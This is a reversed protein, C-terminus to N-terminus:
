QFFSDLQETINKEANGTILSIEKVLLQRCYELLKKESFSLKKSVKTLLLSRMVDAVEIISGSNIKELYVRQRRNWTSRDVDVQHDQLLQYVSDLENEEVLPRIGNKNNAPVMVKLENMLVRVKYFLHDQGSLEKSEIAIVQAVGHGPCVVYDGIEYQNLYVGKSNAGDYSYFASLELAQTSKICVM